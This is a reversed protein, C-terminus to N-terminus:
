LTVEPELGEIGRRLEDVRFVQKTLLLCVLSDAQTEWFQNSEPSLNREDFLEEKVLTKVGGLDHVGGASVSLFRQIQFRPFLRFCNKSLM